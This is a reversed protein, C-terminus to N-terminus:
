KVCASPHCKGVEPTDVLPVVTVGTGKQEGARALFRWYPNNRQFPPNKTVLVIVLSGAPERVKGTASYAFGFVGAAAPVPSRPDLRM